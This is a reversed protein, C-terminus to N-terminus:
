PKNLLSVCLQQRESSSTNLCTSGIGTCCCPSGKPPEAMQRCMLWKHCLRTSMCWKKLEMKEQPAKPPTLGLTCISVKNKERGQVEWTKRIRLGERSGHCYAWVSREKKGQGKYDLGAGLMRRRWEVKDWWEAAWFGEHSEGAGKRENGTYVGQPAASTEWSRVEVQRERRVEPQWIWM